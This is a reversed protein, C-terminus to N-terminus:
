KLILMRRQLIQKETELRYIYHGSPLNQADFIIQHRGATQHTDLLEAVEQGIMNYVTLIIHDPQGLSYSITTTPNFPNPYNQYLSFDGPIEQNDAVPSIREQSAIILNEAQYGQDNNPWPGSSAPLEPDDSLLLFKFYYNYRVKETFYVYNMLEQFTLNGNENQDAVLFGNEKRQVGERLFNLPFQNRSIQFQTVGSVFISNSNPLYNLFGGACCCHFIGLISVEQNFQQLLARLEVDLMLGDDLKFVTPVVILNDLGDSNLDLFEGTGEGGIFGDQDTDMGDSVLDTHSSFSGMNMCVSLITDAEATILCFPIDEQGNRDYDAVVVEDPYPDFRVMDPASYYYQHRIVRAVMQGNRNPYFDGARYETVWIREEFTSSNIPVSLSCIKREGLKVVDTFNYSRLIGVPFRSEKGAPKFRQDTSDYEFPSTCFYGNKDNVRDIYSAGHTDLHMYLDKIEPDAIMQDRLSVFSEKTFPGVPRIGTRSYINEGGLIYIDEDPIGISRFVNVMIEAYRIIFDENFVGILAVTKTGTATAKFLVPEEKFEELIRSTQHALENIELEIKERVLNEQSLQLIALYEANEQMEAKIGLFPLFAIILLIRTKM